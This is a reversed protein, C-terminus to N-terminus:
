QAKWGRLYDMAVTSMLRVGIPLGADDGQFLPSHNVAQEANVGAPTVSLSFFMGPARRAFRSFDEGAASPRGISFNDAGVVRKLTPIMRETLMTDNVTIDYGNVVTVDATAGASQAIAEATHKMRSQIATRMAADYTRLTGIMVVSDPIINERLGGNFAGVTLVAPATTLDVQRSIITQYALVIQAGVVIPDVGNSPFAGHTQRGHVIMKWSDAAATWPGPAVSVHGLVGPGVHLGFVADVKPNDMVGADIMPRAGGIPPSEEAPQFLFKVTGPIQAKMASLVEATGMLIATHMDHGCAHMVGVDQGNYTTRVTSKYSVNVREEVPLADMDARLAVVPGPKGGRLIGVVGNGGVGTQVELGLLRLHDAVVRATRTEQTSLEPHSHIDHRWATVKAAIASSGRDIDDQIADIRQASAPLALFLLSLVVLPLRVPM